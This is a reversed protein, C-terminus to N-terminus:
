GRTLGLIFEILKYSGALLIGGLILAIGVVWVTMDSYRSFAGIITVTIFGAFAAITGLVLRLREGVTSETNPTLQKM